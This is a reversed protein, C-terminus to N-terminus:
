LKLQMKKPDAMFKQVDQMAGRLDKQLKEFDRAREVNQQEYLVERDDLVIMSRLMVSGHTELLGKFAREDYRLVDITEGGPTTAELKSSVSSVNALSYISDRYALSKDATIVKTSGCAVLLFATLVSLTFRLTAARPFHLSMSFRGQQHFQRNLVTSAKSTGSYGAHRPPKRQYFTALM